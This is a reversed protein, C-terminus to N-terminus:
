GNRTDSAPLTLEGTFTWTCRLGYGASSLMILLTMLSIPRLPPLIPPLRDNSVMVAASRVARALFAAAALAFTRAFFATSGFPFQIRWLSGVQKWDRSM